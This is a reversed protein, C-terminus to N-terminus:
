EYRLAEIPKIKLAKRTPFYGALVGAIVLLITASIAIDLDVTANQFIVKESGLTTTAKAILNNAIETVIVGLVMGVYGFFATIVLSEAVILRIISSPKAGLAKRIGFEKTREKVTILIINSVGVIGSILISIGIVWLFTTLISFLSMMKLYDQFANWIYIASYDQPDFDHKRSLRMRLKEGFRLNAELTTLNKLTFKIERIINRENYISRGVELPIYFSLRWGRQENSYIGVITYAIDDVVILKGIIDETDFLRQASQDSIVMVKRQEERDMRNFARGQQIHINEARFYLPTVAELNGEAYKKKNFFAKYGLNYVPEVDKVDTFEYALLVSDTNDMLIERGKDHGKYPLSTYGSFLTVSNNSRDKFNHMVGNKLGNGAALLLMLMFIGWAISFGTLVTRLKNRQLSEAIEQFFDRM